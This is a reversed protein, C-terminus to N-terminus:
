KGLVVTLVSEMQGCVQLAGGDFVLVSLIDWPMLLIIM